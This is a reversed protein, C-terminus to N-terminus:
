ISKVRTRKMNEVHLHTRVLIWWRFNHLAWIEFNKSSKTLRASLSIYIKDILLIGDMQSLLILFCAAYINWTILLLRHTIRFKYVINMFKINMSYFLTAKSKHKWKVVSGWECLNVKMQCILFFLCWSMISFPWLDFAFFFVLFFLIVWCIVACNLNQKQEIQIKRM